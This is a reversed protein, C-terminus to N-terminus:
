PTLLKREELQRECEEAIATLWQGVTMHHENFLQRLKEGSFPLSVARGMYFVLTISEVRDAAGNVVEADEADPHPDYEKDPHHVHKLAGVVKDVVGDVKDFFRDVGDTEKKESM